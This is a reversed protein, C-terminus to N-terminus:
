GCWGPLTEQAETLRRELRRYGPEYSGVLAWYRRSHNMHRTHCLEHLCLYDVLEPELLLACCNLSLTGTSSYSGWRTKQRRIQVRQYRLGTRESLAALRPVLVRRGQTKLWDILIESGRRRHHRHCALYLCDGEQRWGRTGAEAAYHLQRTEGTAPLYIAEPLEVSKEPPADALRQVAADIWARKSEVFARVDFHRARFPVVVEVRGPPHVNITFHRARKSARVEFDPPGGPSALLDLQEPM